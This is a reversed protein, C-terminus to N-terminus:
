TPEEAAEERLLANMVDLDSPVTLKRNREDGPVVTV